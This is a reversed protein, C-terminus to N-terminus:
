INALNYGVVDNIWERYQFINTFAQPVSTDFDSQIFSSIAVLSNDDRLIVPSGSDGIVISRDDANKACFVNTSNKLIPFTQVREEDTCTIMPAFNIYSSGASQTVGNGIVIVDTRESLEVNSLKISRITQSFEVPEPLHVLAIDHSISDSDYGPHLHVSEKTIYFELRDRQWYAGHHLYGLSVDIYDFNELCHAATLLWRDSILCGGCKEIEDEHSIYFQAFFPFQGRDSSIGNIIRSKIKYSESYGSLLALVTLFSKIKKM